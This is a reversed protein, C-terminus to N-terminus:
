FMVAENGFVGGAGAGGGGYGPANQAQAFLAALEELGLPNLNILPQPANVEVPALTNLVAQAAQAQAQAVARPSSTQEQIVRLYDPIGGPVLPNGINQNLITSITAPSMGAAALNATATAVQEPTGQFGGPVPTYPVTTPAATTSDTRTTTPPQTTTQSGPPPVPEAVVGRALLAALANELAESRQRRANEAAIRAASSQAAINALAELVGKEVGATQTGYIAQLQQQALNGAMQAEALRSAQGAQEAGRLVNLLSNYNAASGAAAANLRNLEPQVAAPSAGQAQMYQGLANQTITPMAGQAEQFARPANQELAARLNGYGATTVAQSQALRDAIQKLLNTQQQQVFGRQEQEQKNIEELAGAFPQRSANLLDVTYNYANQGGTALRATEAAKLDLMAKQYATLSSGTGSGAAGTLWDYGSDTNAPTASSGAGLNTDGPNFWTPSYIVAM